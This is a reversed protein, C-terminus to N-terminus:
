KLSFFNHFTNPLPNKIKPSFSLSICDSPDPHPSSASSSSDGGDKEMAAMKLPSLLFIDPLRVFLAVDSRDDDLTQSKVLSLYDIM